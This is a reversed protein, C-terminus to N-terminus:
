SKKYNLKELCGILDKELLAYSRDKCAIRGILVYDCDSCAHLPLIDCALANLRRRIRNRVVSSPSVKKTVTLGVRLGEKKNKCAQLIFAPARWYQGEQRVRLFSSREKLRQICRAQQKNAKM